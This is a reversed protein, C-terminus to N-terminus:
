HVDSRLVPQTLQHLKSPVQNILDSDERPSQAILKTQFYVPYKEPTYIIQYVPQSHLPRSILFQKTNKLAPINKILVGVTAQLIHVPVVCRTGGGRIGPPPLRSGVRENVVNTPIIQHFIM